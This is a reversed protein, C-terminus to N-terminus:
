PCANRYPQCPSTLSSYSLADRKVIREVAALTDRIYRAGCGTAKLVGRYDDLHEVLPRRHHKEFPDGIGLKANEAKKILDNLMMGAVKKNASLPVPRPAGPVRGYWKTSKEKHKHAGPTGKPVQKGAADLYRVVSKKFVSAM